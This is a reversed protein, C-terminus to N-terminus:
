SSKEGTGFLSFRHPKKPKGQSTMKIAYCSEHIPRGDDDTKSNKLDIPQFCIACLLQHNMTLGWPLPSYRLRRKDCFGRSNWSFPDYLDVSFTHLFHSRVEPRGCGGVCIASVAARACLVSVFIAFRCFKSFKRFRIILLKCFVRLPSGNLETGPWWTKMDNRISRLATMRNSSAKITPHIFCADCADSLETQRESMLKRYVISQLACGKM